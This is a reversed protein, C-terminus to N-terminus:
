ASVGNTVDGHFSGGDRYVGGGVDRDTYPVVYNDEASIGASVVVSGVIMEGYLLPASAGQSTVNTPGNFVHSRRNDEERQQNKPVPSLLQIVGGVMMSIGAGYFYMSWPTLVGGSMYQIVAGVAILVAGLVVNLVGARKSGTLVPVIRIVDPGSPNALQDEALNERGSFVTFAVGRDKAGMLYKEFGPRMACLAQVAEAASAVSLRHVRGFERALSGSLLITRLENM